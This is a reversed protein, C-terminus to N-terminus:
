SESLPVHCMHFLITDSQKTVETTAYQLAIYENDFLSPMLNITPILLLGILILHKIQFQLMNIKMQYRASDNRPSLDSNSNVKEKGQETHTSTDSSFGIREM